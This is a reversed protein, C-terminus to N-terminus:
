PKANVKINCTQNLFELTKNGQLIKCAFMSIFSQMGFCCQKSNLCTAREKSVSTTGTLHCTAGVSMDNM